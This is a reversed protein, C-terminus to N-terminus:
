FRYGLSIQFGVLDVVGSSVNIGNARLGVRFLYNEQFNKQWGSELTAASRLATASNGNESVITYSTGLGLKSYFSQGFLIPNYGLYLINQFFSYSLSGGTTFYETQFGFFWRDNLKGFAPEVFLGAGTSSYKIDSLIYGNKFSLGYFGWISVESSKEKEKIQFSEFKSYDVNDAKKIAKISNKPIALLEEGKKLTIMNATDEALLGKVVSEDDLTLITNSYISHTGITNNDITLIESQPIKYKKDKFLILLFDPNEELIECIFSNESRLTVEASFLITSYVLLIFLFLKRTMFGYSKFSTM